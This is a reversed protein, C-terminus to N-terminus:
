KNKLIINDNEDYKLFPFNKGPKVDENRGNYPCKIEVISEGDDLVADPSAGLFPKEHCVFFWM